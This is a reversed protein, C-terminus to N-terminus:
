RNPSIAPSLDIVSNDTANEDEIYLEVDAVGGKGKFSNRIHFHYDGGQKLNELGQILVDLEPKKIGMSIGFWGTNFDEIQINM